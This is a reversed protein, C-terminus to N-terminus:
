GQDKDIMLVTIIMQQGQVSTGPKATMILLTPRAKASEPLDMVYVARVSVADEGGHMISEGERALRWYNGVSVLQDLRSGVKNVWQSGSVVIRCSPKESSAILWIEAHPDFWHHFRSSGFTSAASFLKISDPAEDTLAIGRSTLITGKTRGFAAAHLGCAQISKDINIALAEVERNEEATQDAGFAVNPMMASICLASSFYWALFKLRM